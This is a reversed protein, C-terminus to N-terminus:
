KLQEKYAEVSPYKQKVMSVMDKIADTKNYMPKGGQQRQYVIFGKIIEYDSKPMTFSQTINESEKEEKM